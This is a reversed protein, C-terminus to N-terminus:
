RPMLRIENCDISTAGYRRLMRLHRTLPALGDFVEFANSHSRYIILWHSGVSDSTSHNLLLFKGEPFTSPMTDIAYNGIYCNKVAPWMALLRNFTDSRM